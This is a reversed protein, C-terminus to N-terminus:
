IGDSDDSDTPIWWRAQRNTPYLFSYDVKENDDNDNDEDGNRSQVKCNHSIANDSQQMNSLHGSTKVGGGSGCTLSASKSNVNDECKIAIDRKKGEFSSKGTNNGSPVENMVCESLNESKVNISGPIQDNKDIITHLVCIEGAKTAAQGQEIAPQMSDKLDSQCVSAAVALVATHTEAEDDVINSHKSIPEETYTQPRTDSTELKTANSLVSHLGKQIAGELVQEVCVRKSAQHVTAINQEHERKSSSSTEQRCHNMASSLTETVLTTISQLSKQIDKIPALTAAVVIPISPDGCLTSSVLKTANNHLLQGPLLVDQRMLDDNDCSGSEVYSHIKLTAANDCGNAVTGGSHSKGKIALIAKDGESNSRVNLRMSEHVVHNDKVNCTQLKQYIMNSCELLGKKADDATVVAERDMFFRKHGRPIVSRELSSTRSYSLKVDKDNAVSLSGKVDKSNSPLSVCGSKKIHICLGCSSCYLATSTLNFAALRRHHELSARHAHLLFSNRFSLACVSCQSVDPSSVLASMNTTQMSCMMHFEYSDHINLHQNLEDFDMLGTCCNHCWIYEKLKGQKWQDWLSVKSEDCIHSPDSIGKSPDLFMMKPSFSQEKEYQSLKKAHQLDLLHTELSLWSNCWIMCVLCPYTGRGSLSHIVSEELLNSCKQVAMSHKLSSIHAERDSRHTFNKNCLICSSSRLSMIHEQTFIHLVVEEIGDFAANCAKCLYNGNGNPLISNVCSGSLQKFLENLKPTDPFHSSADHCQFVHHAELAIEDFFRVGCVACTWKDAILFSKALYNKMREGHEHDQVHLKVVKLDKMSSSCVLCISSFMLGHHFLKKQVKKM